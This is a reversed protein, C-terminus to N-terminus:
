DGMALYFKQHLEIEERAKNELELGDSAIESADMTIPLDNMTFARRSKGIGQLFLGQLLTFFNEDADSITPVNYHIGESDETEIVKHYWVGLIEWEANIPLYLTPKRYTWPLQVKNILDPNSLPDYIKSLVSRPVSYARVPSASSIWDPVDLFENGTEACVIDKTFVINRSNGTRVNMYQDYPCHKSYFALAREVLVRFKDKNLEIANVNLLYQGSLVVVKYFMDNINM